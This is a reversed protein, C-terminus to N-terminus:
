GLSVTAPDRTQEQDPFAEGVALCEQKERRLRRLQRRRLTRKSGTPGASQSKDSGRKEKGKQCVQKMSSSQNANESYLGTPLFAKPELVHKINDSVFGPNNGAMTNVLESLMHAIGYVNIMGYHLYLMAKNISCKLRLAEEKAMQRLAEEETKGEMRIAGCKVQMLYVYERHNSPHWELHWNPDVLRSEYPLSPGNSGDVYEDYPNFLQEM